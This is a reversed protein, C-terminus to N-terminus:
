FEREGPPLGGVLAARAAVEKPQGVALWRWHGDYKVYLDLGSVGTAPMHPMAGNPSTLTWRAELATADTVFRVALGAANRRLNWVPDRVVGEARAPLRDYFAKTDTWGRGEVDLLKLDYWLRDTGQELTAKAPDIVEGASLRTPVAIVVVVFVFWRRTISM